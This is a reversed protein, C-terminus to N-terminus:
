IKIELKAKIIDALLVQAEGGEVNLILKESDIGTLDGIITDTTGKDNRTILKVKRGINRQYDRKTVLPRDLGPSNVELVFRQQILDTKDLIDSLTKNIRACDELSIGAPKDVLLRLVHRGSEWRYILDVLEVAEQGLVPQILNKIQDTVEQMYDWIKCYCFRGSPGVSHSAEGFPILDWLSKIVSARLFEKFEEPSTRPLRESQGPDPYDWFKAACKQALQKHRSVTEM